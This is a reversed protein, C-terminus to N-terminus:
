IGHKNIRNKKNNIECWLKINKITYPNNVSFISPAYGMSIKRFSSVLYYGNLDKLTLVSKNNEYEKDLLKYGKSKIFEKIYEYEYKKSM